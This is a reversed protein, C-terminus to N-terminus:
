EEKRRYSARSKPTEWWDVQSVVVDLHKMKYHTLEAIWKSLNESTPVFNVIFYSEYKEFFCSHSLDERSYPLLNLDIIHGVVYEPHGPISIPITKKNNGIEADFLPDNRDVIMKHDIHVDIFKKLWETHRFDTVMGTDNLKEATLFVQVKAEHGHWHRCACKLDNAYNANLVQSHVRHGYCFEFTKDINWAM